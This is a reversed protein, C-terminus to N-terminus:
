WTPQFVEFIIGHGFLKLCSSVNAGVHTIQHLLFVRFNPHFLPPTLLAFFRCDGFRHLTPGLNSNRVILFDCVRKRNAGVDIASVDKKCFYIFEPVLFIETFISRYQRCGFTPRHDYNRIFIDPLRHASIYRKFPERRGNITCWRVAVPRWKGYPDCLTVKWGVCTAM